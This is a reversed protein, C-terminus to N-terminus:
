GRALGFTLLGRWGLRDLRRARSRCTTCPRLLGFSVVSIIRAATTGPGGHEAAAQVGSHKGTRQDTLCM